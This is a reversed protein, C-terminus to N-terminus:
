PSFLVDVWYNTSLYSSSPFAVASGYTYVGNTGAPATLTGSTRATAFYSSDASYGGSTHYSAIYTANAAISIPTPFTVTQWGSATENTSTALVLRRKSANWLAVTHTGVNQPGKYFRIGTIKGAISSKFKVGLEVSNWDQETVITPIANAPFLGNGGTQVPNTVTLILSATGTGGSNTASLTVGFTGVTAPVGSIAGTATNVVLSAPLGSANFSTPNGSATIQYSFPAGVTGVASLANTITPVTPPPPPPSGAGYCTSANFAGGAGLNSGEWCVQAPIKNVHGSADGNGGAVEPGIPPWAIGAPWWAPQAAYAYSSPIVHDQPIPASAPIDSALFQAVKNFYDYNGWRLLTSTVKPDPYGGPPTYSDWAVTDCNGLNPMGLRYIASVGCGLYATPQQAASGLVNGVLSYNYAMRDLWIAENSVGYNPNFGTFYNRLVTGYGSGGYYNDAGFMEGINGEYLNMINLPAHGDDFTWTVLNSGNQAPSGYSYNYDIAFGSSSNNLEIAPFDKNFINNEIKASSNAGYLYNGYFNFGSNNPGSGGDHIFSDRLETNVTGLMVFHYGSPSASEVGKVWCSDCYWINVGAGSGAGAHDLKMDELGAKQAIGTYYFKVKPSGTSFDYFMPNRVTVTSGLVGTVVNVQTVNRTGNGTPGVVLAPDDERDIEIMTGPALNATNAATFTQSGKAAGTIPTGLSVNGGSGLNVINAGALITKDAGAGRLTVNSNVRIAGGLSAASYTGANLYVVGDNCAGIATNISAASAGPSFTACINTRNPIGGPVGAFSWDTKRDAPVPDACAASTAALISFLAIRAIKM